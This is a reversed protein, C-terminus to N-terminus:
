NIEADMRQQLNRQIYSRIKSSRTETDIRQTFLLVYTRENEYDRSGFVVGEVNLLMSQLKIQIDKLLAGKKLNPEQEFVCSVGVVSIDKIVGKLFEGGSPINITAITDKDPSIRLYKRRGKVNMANMMELIVEATKKLDHKINFFGCQIRNNKLFKERFEEDNNSSFVGIKTTPESDLATGIWKEWEAIPVKDDLYIFVVSNSYKTLVYSLRSHDKALYIEYENQALVGIVQNQMIANPYLFFIKNGNFDTKSDQNSNGSEM